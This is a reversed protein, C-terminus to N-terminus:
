GKKKQTQVEFRKMTRSPLLWDRALAPLSDRALAEAMTLERSYPVSLATGFAIPM